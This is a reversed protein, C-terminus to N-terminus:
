GTTVVLINELPGKGVAARWLVAALLFVIVQIAISMVPREPDLIDQIEGRDLGPTAAM